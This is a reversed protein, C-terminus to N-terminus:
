RGALDKEPVLEFMASPFVDRRFTEGFGMYVPEFWAVTVKYTRGDIRTVPEIEEVTMRRFQGRFRVVDGVAFPPTPDSETLDEFTV